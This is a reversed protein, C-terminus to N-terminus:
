VSGKTAIFSYTLEALSNAAKYYSHPRIGISIIRNTNDNKWNNLITAPVEVGAKSFDYYQNGISLINSDFSKKQLVSSEYNNVFYNTANTNPASVVARYNHEHSSDIDNNIVVEYRKGILYDEWNNNNQIQIICSINNGIYLNNIIKNNFYLSKPCVALGSPPEWYSGFLYNAYYEGENTNRYNSIEELTEGDLSIKEPRLERLTSPDIFQLGSSIGNVYCGVYECNAPISAFFYFKKDNIDEDPKITALLAIISQSNLSVVPLMLTDTGNTSSVLSEAGISGYVMTCASGINYNTKDNSISSELGTLYLSDKEGEPTNRKPNKVTYIGDQRSVVTTIPLSLVVPLKKKLLGQSNGSIDNIDITSLSIFNPAPTPFYGNKKNLLSNINKDYKYSINDFAESNIVFNITIYIELRMTETKVVDDLDAESWYDFQGTSKGEEDLIELESGLACKKLKGIFSDSAPFTVRGSFVIPTNYDINEEQTQRVFSVNTTIQRLEEEYKTEKDKPDYYAKNYFIRFIANRTNSMGIDTIYLGSNAANYVKKESVLTDGQFLKCHYFNHIKEKFNFM